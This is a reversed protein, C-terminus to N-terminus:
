IVEKQGEIEAETVEALAKAGMGSAQRASTFRM